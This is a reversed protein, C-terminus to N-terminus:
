FFLNIFEEETINHIYDSLNIKETKIRINEPTHNLGRIMNELEDTEKNFFYSGYIKVDSIVGRDINLYCEILGGDFRLVKSFSYKPSKGFNWSDLSYKELKLKTINIIDQTTYKYLQYRNESNTIYNQIYQIFEEVSIKESLHDWINTVRSRVSQVSKGQFHEPRSQLANSLNNMNSKFLLTGHQLVRNKYLAIANGSFKKDDIVLDNRGKLQAKIGLKNLSNIIPKTFRSFMATSDEERNLTDIFTFNINGLDHFVAGGGSLRRVVPTNNKKIYELNIEAYANQHLGIIISPSNQWLRFIPMEFNKLLYEEAALNWYPDTSLDLIYYM